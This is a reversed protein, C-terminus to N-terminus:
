IEHYDLLSETALLLDCTSLRVLLEYLVNQRYKRFLAEFGSHRLQAPLSTVAGTFSLYNQGRYM